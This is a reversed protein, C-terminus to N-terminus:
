QYLSRGFDGGPMQTALGAAWDLLPNATVEEWFRSTQRRPGEARQRRGPGLQHRRDLHRSGTPICIPKPSLRTFEPRIPASRGAAKCYCRSANLRRDAARGIRSRGPRLAIQSILMISCPLRKDGDEKTSPPSLSLSLSETPPTPRM